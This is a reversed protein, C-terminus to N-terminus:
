RNNFDTGRTVIISKVIEYILQAMTMSSLSITVWNKGAFCSFVILFPMILLSADILGVKRPNIKLLFLRLIGLVFSVPAIVYVIMLMPLGDNSITSYSISAM